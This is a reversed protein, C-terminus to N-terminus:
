RQFGRGFFVYMSPHVTAWQYLFTSHWAIYVAFLHMERKINEEHRIRLLGCSAVNSHVRRACHLNTVIRFDVSTPHNNAIRWSELSLVDADVM